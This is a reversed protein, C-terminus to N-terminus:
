EREALLWSWSRWTMLAALGIGVSLLVASPVALAPVGVMALVRGVSALGVLGAAAYYGHHYQQGQLITHMRQGFRGIMWICVAIAASGLASVGVGLLVPVALWAPASPPSTTLPASMMWRYLRGVVALLVAGALAYFVGAAPDGPAGVNAERVTAVAYLLLPVSLLQWHTARGSFRAYFRGILMTVTLVFAL